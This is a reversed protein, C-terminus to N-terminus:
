GLKRLGIKKSGKRFSREMCPHVRCFLKAGQPLRLPSEIQDLARQLLRLLEKIRKYDLRSLDLLFGIGAGRYLMTGEQKKLFKTM